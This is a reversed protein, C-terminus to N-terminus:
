AFGTHFRGAIAALLHIFILNQVSHVENKHQARADAGTTWVRPWVQRCTMPSLGGSKDERRRRTRRWAKQVYDARWQSMGTRRSTSIERFLTWPAYRKANKM